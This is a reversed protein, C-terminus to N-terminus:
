RQMPPRTPRTRPPTARCSPSRATRCTPIENKQLFVTDSEKWVNKAADGEISKAWQAMASLATRGGDLLAGGKVLKLLVRPSGVNIVFSPMGVFPWSNSSWSWTYNKSLVLFPKRSVAMTNTEIEIPPNKFPVEFGVDELKGFELPTTAANSSMLKGVKQTKTIISDWNDSITQSM